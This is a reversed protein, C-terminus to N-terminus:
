SFSFLNHLTGFDVLRQALQFGHAPLVAAVQGGEAVKGGLFPFGLAMLVVLDTVATQAPVDGVVALAFKVLQTERQDGDAVAALNHRFLIGLDIGLLQQVQLLALVGGVVEVPILSLINDVPAASVNEDPNVVGGGILFHVVFAVYGHMGVASGIGNGRAGLDTQGGALGNEDLLPKVM